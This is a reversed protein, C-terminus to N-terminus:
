ASQGLRRSNGDRLTVGDRDLKECLPVMIRRSTGVVQRLDSVTATGAQRLHTRIRRVAEAFATALLVLDPSIEVVEGTDILFRLAQQCPQDPILERRAPPELPKEALLRRVFAGAGELRPPLAPRHSRRKLTTGVTQFEDQILDSVLAELIGPRELESAFSVKIEISALGLREPHARHEQDIRDAVRRRLDTWWCADVAWGALLRAKGASALQNVAEAAEAASCAAQRLLTDRSVIRDRALQSVAWGVVDWPAAARAQLLALRPKAQWHKRDADPDLVLGGALTAQESWDRVIFRDGLLMFVPSEFRAQALVGAGAGLEKVGHLFLTAAANASGFHVRVRTRDKLPRAAASASDALRPSRELWVDVTTSAVGLDGLTVVDGRAVGQPHTDSRPELDPLNVATRSGPHSIDVEANYAQLSRIRSAAGGPQLVVSQGRTLTGGALTGTVVTGIGKLVFVRDVPLRPKVIDRPPPTSALKQAIALRLTELGRGTVVSTPIVPADAFPGLRLRDRVEAVIAAERGEALDIKSLAVVAQRVGLYTLIQLHEEAQPMWGDDAAVVFLALDISGVGAVMNKVFDEHGPVDVIGVSLRSAPSEGNAAAHQPDLSVQSKAAPLVLDLHAFGLDITIGRAKEEPLRDPDTGTLAKVLASKGHDVHGATALIAHRTRM